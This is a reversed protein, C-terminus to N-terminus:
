EEFAFSFVANFASGNVVPPLFAVGNSSTAPLKLGKTIDYAQWRYAQRQNQAWQHLIANATLTPNVSFGALGSTAQAAPISPDLAQPTISSGPTGTTTCRQVIYKVANDSPSADSGMEISVITPQVSSASILTVLPAASSQTNTANGSVSYSRAM